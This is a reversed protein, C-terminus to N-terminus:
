GKCCFSWWCSDDCVMAHCFQCIRRTVTCLPGERRLSPPTWLPKSHLRVGQGMHVCSSWRLIAPQVLLTQVGHELKDRCANMQICRWAEAKCETRDALSEAWGALRGHLLHELRVPITKDEEAKWRNFENWTYIFVYWCHGWLASPFNWCFLHRCSIIQRYYTATNKGSQCPVHM